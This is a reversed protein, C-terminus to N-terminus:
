SLKVEPVEDKRRKVIELGFLRTGLGGYRDIEKTPLNIDTLVVQLVRNDGYHMSLTSDPMKFLKQLMDSIKKHQTEEYNPSDPWIIAVNKLGTGLDNHATERM